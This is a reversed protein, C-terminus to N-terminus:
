PQGFVGDLPRPPELGAPAVVDLKRSLASTPSAIEAVYEPANPARVLEQMQASLPPASMLVALLTLVLCFPLRPKM